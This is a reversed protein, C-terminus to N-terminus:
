SGRWAGCTRWSGEGERWLRGAGSDSKPNITEPSDRSLRGSCRARWCGTRHGYSEIIADAAEFRREMAICLRTCSDSIVSVSERGESERLLRLMGCWELYEVKFRCSRQRGCDDFGAVVVEALFVMGIELM